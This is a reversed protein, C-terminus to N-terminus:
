KLTVDRLDVNAGDDGRLHIREGPPHLQRLWEGLRLDPM